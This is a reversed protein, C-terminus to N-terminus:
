VTLCNCDAHSLLLLLGASVDEILGPSKGESKEARGGHVLCDQVIENRGWGRVRGQLGASTFLEKWSTAPSLM